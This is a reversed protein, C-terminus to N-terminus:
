NWLIPYQIESISIRDLSARVSNDFIPVGNHPLTRGCHFTAVNLDLQQTYSSSYLLVRHDVEDTSASSIERIGDGVVAIRMWEALLKRGTPLAIRELRDFQLDITRLFTTEKRLQPADETIPGQLSERFDAVGNRSFRRGLRGGNM